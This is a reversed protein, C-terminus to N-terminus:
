RERCEDMVDDIQTGTAELLGAAFRRLEAKRAENERVAAAYASAAADAAALTPAESLDPRSPAYMTAATQEFQRYNSRIYAARLAPEKLAAAAALIGPEVVKTLRDLPMRALDAASVDVRGNESWYYGRADHGMRMCLQPAAHAAAALLTLCAVTAPRMGTTMKSKM